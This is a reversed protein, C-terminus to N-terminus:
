GTGFIGELDADTSCISPANGGVSWGPQFLNEMENEVSQSNKLFRNQSRQPHMNVGLM